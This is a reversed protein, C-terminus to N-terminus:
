PDQNSPNVTYMTSNRVEFDLPENLAIYFQNVEQYSRARFTSGDQQISLTAEGSVGTDADVVSVNFLIDGVEADEPLMMVEQPRPSFMPRNDNVETVTINIYTSVTSAGDSASIGISYFAQTAVLLVGSVLIDGTNTDITFESGAYDLSYTIVANTGEDADTARARGISVGTPTTESVTATYPADVFVPPSDNVDDISVNLTAETSRRFLVSGQDTARVTLTFNSMMERDFGSGNYFLTGVADRGNAALTLQLTFDGSFESPILELQVVGEMGADSDTVTFDFLSGSPSSNEEISFALVDPFVPAQFNPSAVEVTITGSSSLPIDGNDAAIVVINYVQGLLNPQTTILGSTSNITFPLSGDNLSFTIESNLTDQQDGDTATVHIVPTGEASSQAITM